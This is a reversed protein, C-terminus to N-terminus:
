RKGAKTSTDLRQVIESFQDKKQMILTIMQSYYCVTIYPALGFHTRQIKSTCFLFGFLSYCAKQSTCIGFLGCFPDEIFTSGMLFTLSMWVILFSSAPLRLFRVSNIMPMLVFRLALSKTLILTPSTMYRPGPSDNSIRSCFVFFGLRTVKFLAQM